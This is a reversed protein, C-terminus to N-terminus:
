RSWGVKVNSQNYSQQGPIINVSEVQNGVYISKGSFMTNRAYNAMCLSDVIDDQEGNPHAFSLKGNPSLKYTYLSFERFCQPELEKSPLEIVGNELDEIMGRVIKMKSDQTMVWRKMKRHKPIILDCMAAGIGNSEIYGGAINYRSLISIFEQAITTINEGNRRAVNLVRGSETIISLVSYDSALATDIGAYCKERKNSLEYKGIRCAVDLNRFVESGADTFMAMYEQNFIDTPLSKRQEDIFNTDAYPNDYSTGTFSIYDTNYQQGKLWYNYFWNKSKPTSIILCKKGIATMTPLIAETLATERIFAGEDIIVYSFSFGRISDYREASLFNITSGNIFQITLDAKNKHLIVDHSANVLEQFVKKAQNYIPSIWAGKENKNSLLWYLLLNQGLLSKGFQRGTSVVGFKHESDAFGEIVLRQGEHPKFLSIEM